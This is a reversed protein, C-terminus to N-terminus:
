LYALPNGVQRQLESVDRHAPRATGQFQGSRTLLYSGPGASRADTQGAGGSGTRLPAPKNPLPCGTTPTEKEEARMAASARTRRAISLAKERKMQFM